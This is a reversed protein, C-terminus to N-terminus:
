GVLSANSKIGPFNNLANICIGSDDAFCPVNLNVLGYQSKIEANQRFSSGIEKPIIIKPFNNLNLINIKSNKFFNDVEKIKNKNSSFFLVEEM